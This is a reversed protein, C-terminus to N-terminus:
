FSSHLGPNNPDEDWTDASCNAILAHVQYPGWRDVTYDINPFDTYSSSKYKAMAALFGSRSLHPGAAMLLHYIQKSLGWLLWMIDGGNGATNLSQANGGEANVEANFNKDYQDAQAWGSGPMFFMASPISPTGNPNGFQKSSCEAALAQNIANTVGVGVYRPYYQQGATAESLAVTFNPATITSIIDAGWSKIQQAIQGAQSTDENKGVTVLKFQYHSGLANIADQLAQRADSFNPTDPSVMAVKIVGDAGPVGNASYRDESSGLKKIYEALLAQQKKYSMTLAYYNPYDTGIQTVGASLYPIGRRYSYNACASIQDTGAGGVILFVHDQQDMQSCVYTATSPSYQDDYFVVKVQRGYVSQGTRKLWNWFLDKGVNFSDAKIPAAGTVPAHLGITITDNTVGQTDNPGGVVVNNGGGGGGGGGGGNVGGNTGSGGGAGNSGGIGGSGAAGGGGSGGTGGGSGSIGNDLGGSGGNAGSAVHIGPRQGCSALGLIMVIVFGILKRNRM